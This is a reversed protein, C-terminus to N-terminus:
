TLYEVRLEYLNPVHVKTHYTQRTMAYIKPVLLFHHALAIAYAVTPVAYHYFTYRVM